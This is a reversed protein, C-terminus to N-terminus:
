AAGSGDGLHGAAIRGGGEILRDVDNLDVRVLRSNTPKYAPLSGDAIRLRLTRNALGSYQSATRLDAWRRPPRAASTAALPVKRTSM